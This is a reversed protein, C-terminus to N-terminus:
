NEPAKGRKEMFHLVFSGICLAAFISVSVTGIPLESILQLEWWSGFVAFILKLRDALIMLQQRDKKKSRIGIFEFLAMFPVMIILPLFVLWKAYYDGFNAFYALGHYKDALDDKPLRELGFATIFTIIGVAIWSVIRILNHHKAPESREANGTLLFRLRRMRKEGSSINEAEAPKERCVANVTCQFAVGALAICGAAILVYGPAKDMVAPEQTSVAYVWLCFCLEICLAVLDLVIVMSGIILQKGKESVKLGLKLKEKGVVWTLVLDAIIVILTILHPYFGYIKSAYVDFSGDSAFHIGPEDPLSSWHALYFVFQWVFGALCLAQLIRHPVAAKRNM